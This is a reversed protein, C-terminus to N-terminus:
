PLKIRNRPCRHDRLIEELPNLRITEKGEGSIM